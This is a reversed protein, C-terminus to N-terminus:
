QLCVLERASIKHARPPPRALYIAKLSTYNKKAGVIQCIYHQNIGKELSFSSSQMNRYIYDQVSITKGPLFGVGQILELVPIRMPKEYHPPKWLFPKVMPAWNKHSAIM